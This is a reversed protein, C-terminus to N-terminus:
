VVTGNGRDCSTSLRFDVPDELFTDEANSWAALWFGGGMRFFSILGYFLLTFFVM